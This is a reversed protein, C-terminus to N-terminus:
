KLYSDFWEKIKESLDKRNEKKHLVHGEGQYYYLTAPKRLRRLALYGQLSQDPNVNNDEKGAWLLIPTNINSAQHLPSNAIYVQPNQFYSNQMKFINQEVRTMESQGTTKFIDFYFSVLNLIGCGSVATTFRDTQTIIFATEYGGLSHGILGIRKEDIAATKLATDVAKEVCIVASIGPANHESQIDPLLVFYGNLAYNMFNFGVDDYPSPPTFQHYLFSQEQYIHVVMPYKKNTDYNLPYILVGKLSDAIETNYTILERKPWKFQDWEPNSKYITKVSDTKLDVYEISIPDTFSQQAFLFSNKDLQLLKSLRKDKWAIKRINNDQWHYYGTKLTQYNKASLILGEQNDIKYTNFGFDGYNMRQDKTGYVIRFVTKSDRGNTLKERHRGDCSIKWVDFEDYLFLETEDKTWGALGYPHPTNLSPSKKNFVSHPLNITINSHKREKIDYIWWHRDKFYTVYRGGPSFHVFNIATFQNPVVLEKKGSKLNIAYIDVFTNSGFQPERAYADFNLAYNSNPNFLVQPMERNGLPVVRSENTFWVQQWPGKKGSTIFNNQTYLATDFTDWIEPGSNAQALTEPLNVNFFVKDGTDSVSIKTNAISVEENSYTDVDLFKSTRSKLDFLAVNYTKGNDRSYLFTLKEGNASWTFRQFSVNKGEMIEFSNLSELNLIQLSEGYNNVIAMAVLNKLPNIEFGNSKGLNYIKKTDLATVTLSDEMSQTLWYDGSPAFHNIKVNPITDSLNKEINVLILSDSALPLAFWKNNSSFKGWNGNPFNFMNDTKLNIISATYTGDLYYNMYHAWEGNESASVLYTHSWDKEEASDPFATQAYAIHILILFFLSMGSKANNKFFHM